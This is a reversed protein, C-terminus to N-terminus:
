QICQLECAPAQGTRSSDPQVSSRSTTLQLANLCDQSINPYIKYNRQHSFVSALAFPHHPLSLPAGAALLYRSSWVFDDLIGGRHWVCAHFTFLFINKAEWKLSKWVDLWGCLSGEFSDNLLHGSIDFHSIHLKFMFCFFSKRTADWLLLLSQVVDGVM